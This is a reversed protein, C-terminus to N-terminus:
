WVLASSASVAVGTVQEADSGGAPSRGVAGSQGFPADAFSLEIPRSSAPSGIHPAHVWLARSPLYHIKGRGRRSKYLTTPRRGFVPPQPAQGRNAPTPCAESSSVAPTSPAATRDTQDIPIQHRCPPQRPNRPRSSPSSGALRSVPTTCEQRSPSAARHNQQGIQSSATADPLAAGHGAAYAPM